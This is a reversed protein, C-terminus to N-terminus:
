TISDDEDEEDLFDTEDFENQEDGDDDLKQTNESNSNSVDKDVLKSLLKYLDAMSVSDDVKSTSGKSGASTSAGANAADLSDGAVINEELNEMIIVLVVFCINQLTLM